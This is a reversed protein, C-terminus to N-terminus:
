WKYKTSNISRCLILGQSEEVSGVSSLLRWQKVGKSSHKMLRNGNQHVLSRFFFLRWIWTELHIVLAQGFILLVSLKLSFCIISDHRLRVLFTGISLRPFNRRGDLNGMVSKVRCCICFYCWSRSWLFVCMSTWAAHMCVRQSLRSRRKTSTEFGWKTVGDWRIDLLSLGVNLKMVLSM